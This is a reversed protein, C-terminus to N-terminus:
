ITVPSMLYMHNFGMELVPISEEKSIIENLVRVRCLLVTQEFYPQRYSERPVAYGIRLALRLEDYPNRLFRLAEVAPGFRYSSTVIFAGLSQEVIGFM